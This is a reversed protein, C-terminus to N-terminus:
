QFFSVSTLDYSFEDSAATFTVNSWGAEIYLNILASRTSLSIEEGSLILQICGTSSGNHCSLLEDIMEEIRGVEKEWNTKISQPGIAM